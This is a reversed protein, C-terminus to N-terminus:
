SDSVVATYQLRRPGGGPQLTTTHRTLYIRVADGRIPAVSSACAMGTPRLIHVGAQERTEPSHPDKPRVPALIMIGTSSCSMPRNATYVLGTPRIPKPNPPHGDASYNVPIDAASFTCPFLYCVHCVQSADDCTNLRRGLVAGTDLASCPQPSCLPTIHWTSTVHAHAPLHLLATECNREQACRERAPQAAPELAGVTGVSQRRRARVACM